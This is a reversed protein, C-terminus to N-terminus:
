NPPAGSVRAGSDNELLADVERRGALEADIGEGIARAKELDATLDDPSGVGAHLRLLDLRINELAAVTEELRERVQARAADLDGAAERRREALAHRPAAEPAAEAIARSLAGERKRLAKADAELAAIVSPVNAFRGRVASPLRQFIDDVASALLAETRQSGTAAPEPRKLGLGSLRFLGRGFRGVLLREAIPLARLPSDEEVTPGAGILVLGAVLAAAGMVVGSVDVGPIMAVGLALGGLFTVLPGRRIWGERKTKIRHAKTSGIVELDDDGVRARYGSAPEVGVLLGGTRVPRGAYSDTIPATLERKARAVAHADLELEEALAQAEQIMAAHIDGLGLGKAIARRTLSVLRIPYSLLGVILMAVPVALEGFGAALIRKLLDTFMAGGYVTVVGAIGLVVGSERLHRLLSRIEPAVEARPPSTAGVAMALAEGNPFRRAPDKALCRDIAEALRPAVHPALSAVRPAPQTVQQHIIAPLNPAEIPLRGTLAEFATVGLSYLDSRGDVPGGTVQEPSMYHVTGVLEGKGTMTAQEAVRAIGFDTVLARESGKELLINDPKIDRHVVHQQHAYALAWAVQQVIRSVQTPPLAGRRRIRQGLSEGAVHAMVFYVLEDREEVLHIPVINPHSLRAATRAERLFRERLEATAGAAPPLLKIAVSRDLAVDRALFVIGMGGRGLERELSYRGALAKQLALFEPAPTSPVPM